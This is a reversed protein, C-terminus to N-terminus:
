VTQRSFSQRYKQPSMGVMSRFVKCFYSQDDFGVATAIDRNPTGEELLLLQATEIRKNMLFRAPTLGTAKKFRRMFQNVSLCAVDAMDSIRIGANSLNTYIFSIATQIRADFFNSKPVARRLFKSFLMLVIAVSEMRDSYGIDKWNFLNEALVNDNDYSLPDYETLIMNPNIEVLHGFLTEDLESSPIELPFDYKDFISGDFDKVTTDEYIHLYYHSFSGTSINDHLVNPPIIYLHGPSLSYKQGDIRVHATGETVCYLRAFPSSVNTYNWNSLHEAKGANIIRPNFLDLAM